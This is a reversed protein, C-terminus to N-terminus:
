LPTVGLRIADLAADVGAKWGLYRVEADSATADVWPAPQAKVQVSAFAAARLDAPIEINRYTINPKTM